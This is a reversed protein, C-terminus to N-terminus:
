GSEFLSCVVTIKRASSMKAFDPVRYRRAPPNSYESHETDLSSSSYVSMYLRDSLHNPRTPQLQSTDFGIPPSSRSPSHVQPIAESTSGRYSSVTIDFDFDDQDFVTPGPLLPLRRKTRTNPVTLYSSPSIDFSTSTAISSEPSSVQPDEQESEMIQHPARSNNYVCALSLCKNSRTLRM